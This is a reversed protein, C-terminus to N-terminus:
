KKVARYTLYGAGIVGAGIAVMGAPTEYWPKPYWGAPFTGGPPVYPTPCGRNAIICLGSVLYKLTENLDGWDFTWGGDGAPKTPACFLGAGSVAMQQGTPCTCTPDTFTTGTPCTGAGLSSGLGLLQPLAGGGLLSINQNLM